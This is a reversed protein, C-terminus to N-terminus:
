ILPCFQFFFSNSLSLNSNVPNGSMRVALDSEMKGLLWQMGAFHQQDHSCLYHILGKLSLPVLGEFFGMRALDLDSLGSILEVTKRRASHLEELVQLPNAESYRGEKALVYPDISTLVPSEEELMRRFRVHYGKVEIDHLHCIQELATFTESPIGKWDAPAWNQYSKPFCDFIKELQNPFSKLAELTISM